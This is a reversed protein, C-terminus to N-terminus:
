TVNSQPLRTMNRPGTAQKLLKKNPEATTDNKPTISPRTPCNSASQLWCCLQTFFRRTPRLSPAHVKSDCDPMMAEAVDFNAAVKSTEEISPLINHSKKCFGASRPCISAISSPSLLPSRSVKAGRSIDHWVAEPSDEKSAMTTGKVLLSWVNLMPNRTTPSRFRLSPSSMHGQLMVVVAVETPPDIAPAGEPPPLSPVVSTDKASEHASSATCIASSAGRWPPAATAAALLGEHVLM